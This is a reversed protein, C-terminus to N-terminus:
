KGNSLYFTDFRAWFLTGGLDNIIKFRVLLFNGLIPLHPSFNPKKSTRRVRGSWFDFKLGNQQIQPAKRNTLNLFLPPYLM